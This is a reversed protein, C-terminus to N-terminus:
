TRQTLRAGYVQRYSSIGGLPEALYVARGIARAVCDAAISGLRAISLHQPEPLPLAGTSIVFITDGDQPAHAPRVARAIGDQAMIAIRTADAKDLRWNAAVIGITTNAALKGDAPLDLAAAPIPATPLPQGGMEGNQELAWAWLTAQGPMVTSGVPNAAMLAGVELGDATVVSASGLGGKLKGAIAGLGAGANGLAFDVAASEAARIALARYPPTEGWGKDGGNGLDFLIAAPVIPVIANGIEIGRGRVALWPVLAGAGDLGFVSGGSLV